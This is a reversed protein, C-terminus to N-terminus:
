SDSKQIKLAKSELNSPTNHCAATCDPGQLGHTKIGLSAWPKIPTQHLTFGDNSRVMEPLSFCFRSSDSEIQGSSRVPNECNSTPTEVPTPHSNFPLPSLYISLPQSSPSLSNTGGTVSGHDSTGSKHDENGHLASSPKFHSLPSIPPPIYPHTPKPTMPVWVQWNVSLPWTQLSSVQQRNDIENFDDM